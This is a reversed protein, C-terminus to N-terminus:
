EEPRSCTGDWDYLRFRRERPAVAYEDGRASHIVTHFAYSMEALPADAGGLNVPYIGRERDTSTLWLVRRGTTERLRQLAAMFRRQFEVDQSQWLLSGNIVDRGGALLLPTGWRADDAVVVDNPAIVQEWSARVQNFGPYDGVRHAAAALRCGGALPPVLILMVAWRWGGGRQQVVQVMRVLVFAQLWALLPVWFVVIRRLAWPYIAAIGPQLCLVFCILGLGAAMIQTPRWADNRTLLLWTWGIGAWAMALAGQFPLIHLLYVLIRGGPLRWAAEIMAPRWPAVAAGLAMGALIIGAAAGAFCIWRGGRARLAAPIPRWALILAMVALGGGAGWIISLVQDKAELRMVTIGAFHLNWAIALAIAGFGLGIRAIRGPTRAQGEVYAAVVLLIGTLVAANLHNITAAFLAALAGWPVRIGRAAAPVYMLVGGLLLLLYLMETTPLSQHYWWLPSILWCALVGWRRWGGMGISGCLALMPLLGWLALIAPLRFLLGPGGMRLFWAGCVPTLHFFYLPLSGDAPRIPVAPFIERYEGEAASFLTREEATMAAYISVPRGQLGGDRAIVAANNQYIGPDWGGALWESRPSRLLPLSTLLWVLALGGGFRWLSLDSIRAVRGARIGGAALVILWCVWDSVPTWVGCAALALAPLLNLLLGATLVQGLRLLFVEGGSDPRFERKSFTWLWGAGCVRLALLFGGAVLEM